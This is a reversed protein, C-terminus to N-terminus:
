IWTQGSGSGDLRHVAGMPVLGNPSPQPNDRNLPKHGYGCSESRHQVAKEPLCRYWQGLLIDGCNSLTAPEQSGVLAAKPAASNRELYIMLSDYNSGGNVRAQNFKKM